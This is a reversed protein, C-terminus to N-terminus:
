IYKNSTSINQYRQKNVTAVLDMAKHSVQQKSIVSWSWLSSLAYVFEVPIHFIDDKYKKKSLM